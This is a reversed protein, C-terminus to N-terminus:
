RPDSPRSCVGSVTGADRGSVWVAQDRVRVVCMCARRNETRGPYCDSRCWCSDADTDCWRLPIFSNAHRWRSTDQEVQHLHISRTKILYRMQLTAPQLASLQSLCGTLSGSRWERASKLCESVRVCYLYTGLRHGTTLGSWLPWLDPPSIYHWFLYSGGVVAPKDRFSLDEVSVHFDNDSSYCSRCFAQYPRLFQSLHLDAHTVTAHKWKKGMARSVQRINKQMIHVLCFCIDWRDVHRCVQEAATKPGATHATNYLIDYAM